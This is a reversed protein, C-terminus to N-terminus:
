FNERLEPSVCPIEELVRVSFYRRALEAIGKLEAYKAIGVDMM